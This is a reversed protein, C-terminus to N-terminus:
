LIKCPNNTPIENVTFPVNLINPSFLITCHSRGYRNDAIYDVRTFAGNTDQVLELRKVGTLEVWRNLPTSCTSLSLLTTPFLLTHFVGGSGLLDNIDFCTLLGQSYPTGLVKGGAYVMDGAIRFDNIIVNSSILASRVVSFSIDHYTVRQTGGQRSYVIYQGAKWERVITTDTLITPTEWIHSQALGVMGTSFTLLFILTKIRM